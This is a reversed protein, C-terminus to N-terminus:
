RIRIRVAGYQKLVVDEESMGYARSCGAGFQKEVVEEEPVGM